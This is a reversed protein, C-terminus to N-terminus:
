AIAKMALHSFLHQRRSDTEDVTVTTRVFDRLKHRFSPEIGATDILIADIADREQECALPRYAVTQRGGNLSIIQHNQVASWLRNGTAALDALQPASFMDDGFPLWEVFRRSVHFGDGRVHWLWFVLRSSLIAFARWAAPEDAFEMAMIPNKSMPVLSSPVNREHPRFVNLFNYATSAVFVKPRGQRAFADEPLCPYATKWMEEFRNKIRELAALANAQPKGCLKPIGDTVDVNKVPTFRINEFLKIRSRSTWKRLPGTEIAAMAGRAPTDDAERRFIIANRTKVDEGFLAHPERDFFAFRWRAGSQLIARRCATLQEGRHYAISLPVVLGAASHGAKTLRWMMEIFLPYLDHVRSTKDRPFSAFEASLFASDERQGIDAYPPNGVLIDAGTALEPFLRGLTPSATASFSQTLADRSMVRPPKTPPPEPNNLRLRLALRTRENYPIGDPTVVTLADIATLNLRIAHWARWPSLKRRVVDPLCELLLVFTAAEVALLSVDFGFLTRQVFAFRDLAPTNAVAASLVARLFVGSGCAADLCQIESIPKGHAKLTEAVIYEAVDTPTYFVGAERKANRAARTEPDRMVSLRSGPGHVDIIYPLLDQFEEGFRLTEAARCARSESHPDLLAALSPLRDRDTGFFWKEAGHLTTGQPLSGSTRGLLWICMIAWAARQAVPEIVHTVTGCSWRAGFLSDVVEALATHCELAKRVVEVGERVHVARSEAETALVV